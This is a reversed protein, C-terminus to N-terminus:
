DDLRIYPYAAAHHEMRLTGQPDGYYDEVARVFDRLRLGMYREEPSEALVRRLYGVGSGLLRRVGDAHGVFCKLHCASVQILGQLYLGQAAQKDCLQWLGEWAEHAEWWYGHNYLDCGYLYDESEAWRMPPVWQVAPPPVGPSHYSHGAPNATPHPHRGPVFRYPPFSRRSYRKASLEEPSFGL